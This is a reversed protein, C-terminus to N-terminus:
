GNGGAALARRWAMQVLRGCLEPFEIGRARAAKPLLSSATFGPINNGELVFLADDGHRVIMDVRIMDRAGVAQAFALAVAQARAQVAAPITVPPCHYLTEGAAHTYKADYDYTKGPFQIEVLPLAEGGLVGVTIERGGIYQEVLVRAPDSRRALALAPAWEEPAFVLSIGVTSGEAPPKVVVPLALGAPLADDDPGLIAWPATPIGARDMAEKSPIKDFVIRCAAADCGVFPLGEAALLAQLDGNEGFGGHLVPFVVDAREAEPPVALSQLDIEVVEHGASRLANAVAAGSELSVPRESSVGGKLVAVRLPAPSSAIRAASASDAFAVELSLHIGATEIVRRRAQCLLDVVDAERAAGLNMLWNAHRDSLAADGIRLGKAGAQDLLRGASMTPLPNRFACGASRGRPDREARGCIAAEIRAKEEQPDIPQLVLVAGTVIVDVPISSHREGWAIADGDAQWPRGDAHCGTVTRIASGIATGGAGANMRLAGGLSGPIAALPALGGWGAAAAARLVTGLRAAAGVTVRGDAVAVGTFGEGLRILIGPQPTDRGILNSGSGLPLAPIRAETCFALLAALVTADAPEALLPITATGAGLTTVEAWPVDQRLGLGPQRAAFGAMVAVLDATGM